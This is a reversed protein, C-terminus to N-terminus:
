RIISVSGSYTKKNNGIEINYYYTGVPLPSGNRKGDWINRSGSGEFIVRGNRNYVLIKAGTYSNLNPIEWVDNINDGNPSFANPIILNQLVKIQLSDLSSCNNNQTVLLTYTIDNMPKSIPQLVANNNLAINPLWLYVLNNSGTAAANLLTEGGALIVKDNGANVTPTDLIELEKSATDVCGAMTTFSYLIKYKSNALVTRANFMGVSDIVGTGSYWGRGLAGSIEVAKAVSIIGENQCVAPLNQFSIKPQAKLTLFTDKTNICNIGSQVKLQIPLQQTTPNGFPVFKKSYQANVLPNNVVLSDVAGFYWTVKTLSGFNVTSNDILKVSDGSCFNQAPIAITAKPLAGNINFTQQITDRCFNNSGVILQVNYQNAQTYQHLPNQHVSTDPNSATANGDGFRWNWKIINYGSPAFSTNIFQTVDLVCNQPLNFGATPKPHITLNNFSTDTICGNNTKVVQKITYNGANVFHYWNNASTASMLSDGNSFYYKWQNIITNFAYSSDKLTIAINNCYPALTTFNAVAKKNVVVTQIATDSRCGLTDTVWFKVRYTGTDNYLYQINQSNFNNPSDGLNWYYNNVPASSIQSFSGMLKVSDSICGNTQCTFNALPKKGFHVWRGMKLTDQSGIPVIKFEVLISDYTNNFTYTAISDTSFTTNGFSWQKYTAGELVSKFSFTYNYCTNKQVFMQLSPTHINNMFTPFNINGRGKTLVIATDIFQSNYSSDNPKNLCSLRTSNRRILYVKSDSGIQLDGMRDVITIQPYTMETSDKYNFPNTTTALTDLSYQILKNIGNQKYFKKSNPSFSFTGSGGNIISLGLKRPQVLLGSVNNLFFIYNPSVALMKGNPSGKMSCHGSLVVNPGALSYDSITPQVNIGADTLKFSYFKASYFYKTIIWYDKKNDCLVAALGINTETQLVVNKQVVEGLGNQKNMNIVSYCLSYITNALVSKNYFLYFVSDNNPMPVAVVYGVTNSLNPVLSLNDGNVMVQHAKNWVNIGDSYFLLQGSTDSISTCSNTTSINGLKSNNVSTTSFNEFKIGASDPFYWNNGRQAYISISGCLTFFSALILKLNIKM